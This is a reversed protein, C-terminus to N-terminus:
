QNDSLIRQIDEDSLDELEALSRTLMEEDVQETLKQTVFESLGAITPNTFVDQILLEVGLEDVIRSILQTVLLSHGGLTFFNNHIGVKELGLLETWIQAIQEELSNRPPVFSQEIDTNIKEPAPLAKRDIKGNATLPLTQLLLFASPIMYDPIKAQLFSRLEEVSLSIDSELVLYAVLRQDGPVDGRVMVVVDKINPYQSLLVEIEGLEIRFGRLKVQNDLRGLFELTGDGRFRVEDGTKYLREGPQHSFPHPIFKQATLAPQNLYGRALGAGGIYLEGVAGKPVPQLYQDLVYLRTNAIPNGIPISGSFNHTKPVQYICCGVVTETPGYENILITNPAFKQWFSIHQRTLNEGGIIFANTRGVAEVSSLQQSLLELHAPTIKVLSLNNRSKLTQALNVIEQNEPLLEVQRGVILPSFLSTITLDFGLSSHVLTGSGQEVQYAQTCWNLYNILGYHSILTGKPKGTSGSTYIVYALNQANTKTSPNEQAEEGITHWDTDICIKTINDANLDAALSEQTLLLSMQTDALIFAKREMPYNADMPVYAAGAKLIGLVGIVMWISREICIGVLHESSVGLNQLYNALQNARVNLEQYTLKEDAFIVAINDPTQQCQAEFWHHICQYPLQPIQTQNFDVLLQQKDTLTLVSLRSINEQPNDIASTIFTILQHALNEIDEIAFLNSDYHLELQLQGGILQIGVLKIKFRDCCVYHRALTFTIEGANYQKVAPTFDFCFPFFATELDQHNFLSSKWTFSEQWDSIEANIQNIRTLIDCFRDGDELHCNLPLYKAFLGLSTQLEEYNRGHFKEGIILNNNGTLRWLLVLWCTLIFDAIAVQYQPVIESIKDILDQQIPINIVQPHFNDAQSQLNENCLKYNNCASIDIQQFYKRGIASEEAELLENFWDSIDAYQLSEELIEEDQLQGHYYHCIERVLNHLTATDAYLASLSIFLVHTHHNINVLKSSLLSTQEIDYFAQAQNFLQEIIKELSANKIDEQELFVFSSDEIVQVPTKLGPPCHIQTRLVEHNDVIKQLCLKLLDVQLNGQIVIACCARYVSNEQQLLWLREQQPSLQFGQVQSLM